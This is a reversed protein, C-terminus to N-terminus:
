CCHSAHLGWQALLSSLRHLVVGQQGHLCLFVKQEVDFGGMIEGAFMYLQSFCTGCTLSFFFSFFSFELLEISFHALSNFLYKLFSIGTAM